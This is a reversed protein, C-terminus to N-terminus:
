SKAVAGSLIEKSTLVIQNEKKDTYHMQILCKKEQTM